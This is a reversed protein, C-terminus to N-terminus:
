EETYAAGAPIPDAAPAVPSRVHFYVLTWSLALFPTTLANPIAASLWAEFFGSLVARLIAGIIATAIGSMVASVLIIWFVRWWHGRVLSSSRELAPIGAHPELVVVPTVLSWRVLLLYVGVVAVLIGLWVVHLLASAVIVVVAGVGLILGILLSTGVLPAFRRRTRVALERFGVDVRDDRVDETAIALAGQVAFFGVIGAIVGAAVLVDHWTHDNPVTALASIADTAVFVALAISFFHLFFRRYLELAEGIVNGTTLTRREYPVRPGGSGSGGDDDRRREALRDAGTDYSPRDM